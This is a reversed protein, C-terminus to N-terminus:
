HVMLVPLTMAELVTRSAGGLIWERARSHGYCGMVLLDAGLDAAESLLAEGDHGPDVPGRQVRAAIGHAQLHRQVEELAHATEPGHCCVTVQEARCLWPLAASLARAAERTQKWALMVRRGPSPAPGVYPVILAPRGTEILLSSVFDAPLADDTDSGPERQGLVLLDAHLAQQAFSIPDHGGKSLWGLRPSVALRELQTRARERAQADLAFLDAPVSISSEIIHPYRFMSPTTAYMADVRADFADALQRALAIREACRASDDLHLLISKLEHQGM